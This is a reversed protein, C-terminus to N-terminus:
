GCVQDAKQPQGSTGPAVRVAPDNYPVRRFLPLTSHYQSPGDVISVYSTPPSLPTGSGTANDSSCRLGAPSRRLRVSAALGSPRFGLGKHHM